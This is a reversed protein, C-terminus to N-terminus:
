SETYYIRGHKKILIQIYLNSNFNSTIRKDFKKVNNKFSEKEDNKTNSFLYLAGLGLASILVESM